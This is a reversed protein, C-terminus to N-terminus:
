GEWVSDDLYCSSYKLDLCSHNLQLCWEAVMSSIYKWFVELVPYWNLCLCLSFSFDISKRFGCSSELHCSGESSVLDIWGLALFTFHRFSYSFTPASGIAMKMYCYISGVCGLCWSIQKNLYLFWSKSNRKRNCCILLM